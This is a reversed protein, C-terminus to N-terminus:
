GNTEQGSLKIIQNDGLINLQKGELQRVIKEKM